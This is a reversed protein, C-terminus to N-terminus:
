WNPNGCTYNGADTTNGSGKYIAAQPYPCLPRSNDIVNATSHAAILKEPATGNERWRELATLADFSNPGAGGQCHTMGPVMFLRLFEQTKQPGGIASVVSEYYNISNGPQIAQDAWGHYMIMKGGHDEFAKLNPDIANVVSGLTQDATRTDRDVDLTTFDWNPNDFVMFRFFGVGITNTVPGANAPAWLLESGPAFGPFIQKGDNYKAGAYILQATKM